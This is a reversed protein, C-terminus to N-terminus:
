VKVRKYEDVLQKAVDQKNLLAKYMLLDISHEVLLHVYTCPYQQGIRFTRSRSQEYNAYSFDLSYYITTHAATLTIGMGATAIQGVFVRVNDNTQFQHVQDERDKTDGYVLSYQINRARLLQCIADIEARFRAFVVIKRDVFEELLNDLETLKATNTAHTNGDDDTAFGGTFQALKLLKVLINDHAIKVLNPAPLTDTSPDTSPSVIPNLANLTDHQINNTDTASQALDLLDVQQSVTPIDQDEDNNLLTLLGAQLEKYQQRQAPTLSVIRQLNVINPMDVVSTLKVRYAVKHMRSLLNDINQYGVVRGFHDLKAYKQKFSYWNEAFITNDIFKYQSYIDLPSNTIPTGSLIINYKSLKGLKHMAKSQKTDHTKIKSSEDAIIYDPKFAVFDEMQRWISEYNLIVIHLPQDVTNNLLTPAVANTTNTKSKSAKTTNPTLQKLLKAPTSYIVYPYDAFKSLENKWVPLISKPAAILVRSIKGDLYLRGMLAISTITKGTGMDALLAFGKNYNYISLAFNFAAVQHKYPTAKIPLTIDTSDEYKHLGSMEQKLEDCVEADLRGLINLAERGFPAIWSKTNTDWKCGKIQKITDKYPYTNGSIIINNNSKTAQIM